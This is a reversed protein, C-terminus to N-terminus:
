TSAIRHMRGNACLEKKLKEIKLRTRQVCMSFCRPSSTTSYAVGDFHM